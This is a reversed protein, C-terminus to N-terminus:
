GKIIESTDQRMRMEKMFSVLYFLSQEFAGKNRHLMSLHYDVYPRLDYLGSALTLSDAMAAYQFAQDLNTRSHDFALNLLTAIRLSDSAETSKILSDQKSNDQLFLVLLLPLICHYSIGSLGDFM